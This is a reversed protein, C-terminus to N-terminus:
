LALRDGMQNWKEETMGDGIEDWAQNTSNKDIPRKLVEKKKSKGKSNKMSGSNDDEDLDFGDDEFLSPKAVQKLGGRTKVKSRTKVKDEEDRGHAGDDVAENGMESGVFICDEIIEEAEDHPELSLSKDPLRPLAMLRGNLDKWQARAAPVTTNTLDAFEKLGVEWGRAYRKSTKICQVSMLVLKVEDETFGLIRIDKNKNDSM